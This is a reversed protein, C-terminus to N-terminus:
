RGPKRLRCREGADLLASDERLLQYVDGRFAARSRLVCVEADIKPLVFFEVEVLEGTTLEVEGIWPTTGSMYDGPVPFRLVRAVRGEIADLRQHSAVFEYYGLVGIAAFGVFFLSVLLCGRLNHRAIAALYRLEALRQRM